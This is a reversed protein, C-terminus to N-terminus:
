KKLIYNKYGGVAETLRRKKPDSPPLQSSSAGSSPPPGPPLPPQVPPLGQQLRRRLAYGLSDVLLKKFTDKLYTNVETVTLLNENIPISIDPNTQSLKIESGNNYGKRLLPNFPDLANPTIKNHMNDDSFNCAQKTNVITLTQDNKSKFIAFGTTRDHFGNSLRKPEIHHLLEYENMYNNIFVNYGWNYDYYNYTKIEKYNISNGSKEVQYYLGCDYPIRNHTYYITVHILKHADWTNEHLTIHAMSNYVPFRNVSIFLPPDIVPTTMNSIIGKSWLPITNDTINYQKDKFLFNTISKLPNQTTAIIAESFHVFDTYNSTLNNLLQNYSPLNM